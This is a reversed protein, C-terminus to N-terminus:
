KLIVEFVGVFIEAASDKRLSTAFRFVAGKSLFSELM